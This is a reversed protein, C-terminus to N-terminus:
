LQMRAFLYSGLGLLLAAVGGIIMFDIALSFLFTDTLAVRLGDIGFGLPNLRVVLKMPVPLGDVPFLANSFIFLPTVFYNMILQYGQPDDLLSGIVTGISGGLLAILFMFGLAAPLLLINEMQFGAFLCITLVILGQLFATTACGLTRGLVIQFRSAPAVLTEKLFGFQRDWIIGVGSNVAPFLIAMAIIGPTLYQLYNGAGARRYLPGVGFDLTILILVPQGLLALIRSKLRFYRKLQRLWLIYIASM